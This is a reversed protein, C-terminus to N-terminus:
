NSPYAAAARLADDIRRLLEERLEDARMV